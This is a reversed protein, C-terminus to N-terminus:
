RVMSRQDAEDGPVSLMGRAKRPVTVTFTSGQGLTSELEIRGAMKELIGRSIYLGLGTGKGPPKTTFFPEFIRQLNEKPIGHGRDQVAISLFDRNEGSRITVAGGADSAQIANNVLNLLVQRLQNPDCWLLWTSGAWETELRVKRDAAERAALQCVEEILEKLNTEKVVSDDKRVFGLLQHTIRRARDVSKEIKELALEFSERHPLSSLEPKKMITNLWGASEGIIALPNNIEHAIGAAMTGLSVLRETAIMQQDMRKRFDAERRREEEWLIKDYAQRIKSLLHDFEIPKSLYDFAGAKIGAVGDDTTSFGTLMIVQTHPYKERIVKLTERGGMDPMMIDLLVVDVPENELVALAERGTGAESITMGRRAFRRALSARFGEEDDVLLLRVAERNEGAEAM